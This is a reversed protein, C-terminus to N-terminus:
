AHLRDKIDTVIAKVQEAAHEPSDTIVIYDAKARKEADPMQKALISEFQQETITGRELVRQRQTTADVSVVVIANVTAAAGSEFLLPMDLVVISDKHRAIFDARDQAVLPHVVTEIQKLASPDKGIIEKLRARDVVGGSVASPFAQAMPAVAAGGLAYLRHVSADADWLACGEQQFLAATSTKGMGISGTLGILVTM